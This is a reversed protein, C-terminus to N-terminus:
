SRTEVRPTHVWSTAVAAGAVDADGRGVHAGRHLARLQLQGTGRLGAEAAHHQRQQAAPRLLRAWQLQCVGGAQGARWGAPCCCPFLHALRPTNVSSVRTLQPFPAHTVVLSAEHAEVVGVMLLSATVHDVSCPMGTQQCVLQQPSLQM